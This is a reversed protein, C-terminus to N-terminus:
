WEDDWVSSSERTRSDGNGAGAYDVDDSSMGRFGSQCIISQHQLRVVVMSPQIYTKM